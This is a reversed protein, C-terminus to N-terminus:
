SQSLCNSWLLNEKEYTTDDLLLQGKDGRIFRCDIMRM